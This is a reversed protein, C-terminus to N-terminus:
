WNVHHIDMTKKVPILLLLKWRKSGLLATDISVQLFNDFDQQSMPLADAKQGFMGPEIGPQAKQLTFDRVEVIASGAAGYPLHSATLVYNPSM